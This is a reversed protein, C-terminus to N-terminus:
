WRVKAASATVRTAPSAHATFAAWLTPAILSFTALDTSASMKMQLIFNCNVTYFKYSQIIDETLLRNSGDGWRCEWLVVWCGCWRVRGVEGSLQGDGM